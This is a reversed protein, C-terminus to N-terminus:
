IKIKAIQLRFAYTGAENILGHCKQILAYLVPAYLSSDVDQGNFLNEGVEIGTSFLGLQIEEDEM